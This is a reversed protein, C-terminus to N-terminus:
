SVNTRTFSKTEESWWSEMVTVGNRQVVLPIDTRTGSMRSGKVWKEHENLKKLAAKLTGSKSFVSTGLLVKFVPKEEQTPTSISADIRNVDELSAWFRFGMRGFAKRGEKSALEEASTETLIFSVSSFDKAGKRIYIRDITLKTDAPLTVVLGNLSGSDRGRTTFRAGLMEATVDVPPNPWKHRIKVLHNKCSPCDAGLQEDALLADCLGCHCDMKKSKETRLVGIVEKRHDRYHRGSFEDGKTYPVNLISSVFAALLADNRSEIFLPFTWEECLVLRDGIDPIHLKM